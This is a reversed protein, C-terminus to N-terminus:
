ASNRSNVRQKRSHLWRFSARPDVRSSQHRKQVKLHRVVQLKEKAILERECVKCLLVVGDTSLVVDGFSHVYSEVRKKTTAATKPMVANQLRSSVIPVECHSRSFVEVAFVGCSRLELPDDPLCPATPADRAARWRAIELVAFNM